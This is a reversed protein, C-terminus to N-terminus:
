LGWYGKVLWGAYSAMGVIFGLTGFHGIPRGVGMAANGKADKMNLGMTHLIRFVLLAGFAGTLTKRNGGNMEVIAGM